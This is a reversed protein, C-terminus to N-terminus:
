NNRFYTDEIRKLEKNAIDLQRTLETCRDKYYDREQELEQREDLHDGVQADTM